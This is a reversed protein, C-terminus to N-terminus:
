LVYNLDSKVPLGQLHRRLMDLAFTSAMERVQNRDRYRFQCSVVIPEQGRVALAFIVRGKPLVDGSPSSDDDPGAVGTISVAIDARSHELAGQAMAAAVPESVAGDSQLLSIDVALQEHKAHNSYTVFGRDSQSTQKSRQSWCKQLGRRYGKSLALFFFLSIDTLLGM